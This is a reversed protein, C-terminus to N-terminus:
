AGPKKKMNKQQYIILLNWELKFGQSHDACDLM